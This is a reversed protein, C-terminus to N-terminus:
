VSERGCVYIETRRKARTREIRESERKVGEQNVKGKGKDVFRRKKARANEGARPEMDALHETSAEPGAGLLSGRKTSCPAERAREKEGALEAKRGCNWSGRKHEVALSNLFNFSFTYTRKNNKWDKIIFKKNTENEQQTPCGNDAHASHLRWAFTRPPSVCGRTDWTRKYITRTYVEEVCM